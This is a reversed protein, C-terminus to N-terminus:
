LLFKFSKIIIVNPDIRRVEPNSKDTFYMATLKAINIKQVYGINTRQKEIIMSLSFIAFLILIRKRVVKPPKNKTNPGENLLKFIKPTKHAIIADIPAVVIIIIFWFIDLLDIEGIWIFIKILIKLEIKKKQIKNKKKEILKEIEFVLKRIM